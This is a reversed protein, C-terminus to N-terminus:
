YSRLKYLEFQIISESQFAKIEPMDLAMVHWLGDPLHVGSEDYLFFPKGYYDLTELRSISDQDVLVATFKLSEDFHWLNGNVIQEFWEPKIVLGTEIYDISIAESFYAQHVKVDHAGASGDKFTVSFAEKGTYLQGLNYVWDQGNPGALTEAFDGVDYIATKSATYTDYYHLEIEHGLFRDARTLVFHDARLNGDGNVYAFEMPSDQGDLFYLHRPGNTLTLVNETTTPTRVLDIATDWVTNFLMQIQSM